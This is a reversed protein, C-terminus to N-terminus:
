FPTSRNTKVQQEHMEVIREEVEILRKDIYDFDERSIRNLGYVRRVRNQLANLEDLGRQKIPSVM